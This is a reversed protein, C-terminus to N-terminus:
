SGTHGYRSSSGSEEAAQRARKLKRLSHLEWAGWALPVGFWLLGKLLVWLEGSIPM